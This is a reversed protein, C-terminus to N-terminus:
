LSALHVEAANLVDSGPNHRRLHQCFATLDRKNYSNIKKKKRQFGGPKIMVEKNGKKKTRYSM